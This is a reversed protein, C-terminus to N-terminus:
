TATPPSRARAAPFPSRAGSPRRRPPPAAPVLDQWPARLRGPPWSLAAPPRSDPPSGGHGPHAPEAQEVLQTHCDGSGPQRPRSARFPLEPPRGKILGSMPSPGQFSYTVLHPSATRRSSDESRGSLAKVATGTLAGPHRDLRARGGASQPSPPCGGAGGPQLRDARRALAGRWWSSSATSRASRCGTPSWWWTWTAGNRQLGRARDLGGRGGPPDAAAGRTAARAPPGAGVLREREAYRERRRTDGSRSGSTRDVFALLTEAARLAGTADKSVYRSGPSAAPHADPYRASHLPTRAAARRGHGGEAARGRGGGRVPARDRGSGGGRLGRRLPVRTVRKRHGLM